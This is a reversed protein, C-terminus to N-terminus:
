YLKTPNLLSLALLTLIIILTLTPKLALILMQTIVIRTAGLIRCTGWAENM